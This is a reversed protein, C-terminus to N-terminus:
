EVRDRKELHADIWAKVQQKVVDVLLDHFHGQYLKLRWKSADKVNAREMM